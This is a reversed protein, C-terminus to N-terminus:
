PVLLVAGVISLVTAAVVIGDAGAITIGEIGLIKAMDLGLTPLVTSLHYSHHPPDSIAPPTPPNKKYM